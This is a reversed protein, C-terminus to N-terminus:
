WPGSISRMELGQSRLDPRGEVVEGHASGSPYMGEDYLYVIMGRREAEEVAFRVLDLWEPTMYGIEKSLGMRAHLLFGHVGREGMSAMQARIGAETIEGNWFWFPVQTYEKAPHGFEARLRRVTEPDPAAGLVLAAMLLLTATRM